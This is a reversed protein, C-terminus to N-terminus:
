KIYKGIFPLSALEKKEATIVMLLFALMFVSASALRIVVNDTFHMVGKQVFFLALMAGMYGLLRAVPYPVPFHRQGWFYSLVMMTGYAALTAWACAYMGYTPIFAFNLILTISAGVLTIIMGMYMKDTIKYWVSLNYYIGLAVNAALLIPVVGLGSRYNKGVIYQWIDLYLATFLFACCLTIVFWKMVKAYTEPANKNTSQSFFFPEASMRFAQIFLTIFIAIKYNAGYIGVATKQFAETGPLLKPLMLRDMTENVMGGMGVILMPWCYTLIKKWLEKDFHFKYDLWEKYLLLFTVIAQGLNALILFGVSTHGNYWHAFGSDPHAAVRGPCYAMFYITLTINVVIGAVRTFAYKRPRGEQRLRAYPIAALTDFVLILVCWIIYESHTGLGIFDSIYQRFYILIASLGLSSLLLSTFTTQFLKEKDTGSAAFRFYATELGYTYIINVFSMSAYVMSFNGYDIMGAPNNLLYTIIPTLLQNLLKAAINSLGYWITQGALQKLSAL